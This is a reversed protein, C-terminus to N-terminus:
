TSFYPILAGGLPKSGRNSDMLCAKLALVADLINDLLQAVQENKVQPHPMGTDM